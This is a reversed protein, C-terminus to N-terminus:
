GRWHPPADWPSRALEAEAESRSLGIDRLLRDDLQALARRSRRLAIAQGIRAGLGALRAPRALSVPPVPTARTTM